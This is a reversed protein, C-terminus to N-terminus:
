PADGRVPLWRNAPDFPDRDDPWACCSCRHPNLLPRQPLRPRSAPLQSLERGHRGRALVEPPAAAPMVAVRLQSPPPVATGGREARSAPLEERDTSPRAPCGAASPASSVLKSRQRQREQALRARQLMLRRAATPVALRYHDIVFALEEDSKMGSGASMSSVTCARIQDCREHLSEHRGQGRARVNM